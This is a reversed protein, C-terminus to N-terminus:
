RLTAKSQFLCKLSGLSLMAMLQILAQALKNRKDRDSEAIAYEVMKQINRGYESIQMQGRAANYEPMGM